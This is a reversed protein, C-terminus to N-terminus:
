KYLKFNNISCIMMNQSKRRNPLKDNELHNTQVKWNISKRGKRDCKCHNKWNIKKTIITNMANTNTLIDISQWLLFTVGLDWHGLVSFTFKDETGLAPTTGDMAFRTLYPPCFYQAKQVSGDSYLDEIHQWLLASLVAPLVICGRGNMLRSVAYKSRKDLQAFWDRSECACPLFSLTFRWQPAFIEAM